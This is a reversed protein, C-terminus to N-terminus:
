DQPRFPQVQGPQQQQPPQVIMGPRAVGPSPTPQQQPTPSGEGQPQPPVAPPFPNFVPGRPQSVQNPPPVQDDADEDPLPPPAFQPQQSAPSTVFPPPAPSANRPPNSVPMVLIRDFRSANPTATMRGAAVYGSVTRLVIELARDEPMDTLQLSIPGGTVQEGNIITTQGVKAWEALIERVTADIAILSVVGNQMQLRVEAHARTPQALSVLALSAAIWSKM